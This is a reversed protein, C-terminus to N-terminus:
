VLPVETWVEQVHDPLEDFMLHFKRVKARDRRTSEADSSEDDDSGKESESGEESESDEDDDDDDDSDDEKAAPKKNLKKMVKARAAQSRKGKGAKSGKSSKTKKSEQSDTPDDSDSDLIDWEEQLNLITFWLIAPLNTRCFHLRRFWDVILLKTNPDINQIKYKLM